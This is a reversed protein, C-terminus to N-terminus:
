VTHRIRELTAADVVLQPTTPLDRAELHVGADLLQLLTDIDRASLWVYDVLPRRGAAPYLGGLNVRSVPAGARLLALADDASEVVVLTQQATDRHQALYHGAAAVGEIRVAFEDTGMGAYLRRQPPDEAIRDNALILVQPQLKTAWGLTVQGHLLREDIRVLLGDM